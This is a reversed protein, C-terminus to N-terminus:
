HFYTLDRQSTSMTLKSSFKVPNIAWKELCDGLLNSHDTELPRLMDELQLAKEYGRKFLPITWTMFLASFINANDRPNPPYIRKSPEM